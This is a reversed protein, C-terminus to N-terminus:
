LNELFIKLFIYTRDFSDMDLREQPTHIDEMLPGMTVIEMNPNLAKFVGCELGGHVALLTLEKGYIDKCVRKMVERLESKEDYSWAPYRAEHKTEFGFAEALIDMTIALDDVYSELAGRLSVNLMVEEDCHIVALNSSATSLGEISMSHHHLGDPVSLMLKLLNESDEISMATKASTEYFAVEMNADSFELEKKILATMEQVTKELKIFPADSFFVASAERPIANDKDGGDMMHLQMDFKANVAYLIRALLRNANGREKDIEGGSHGGKLGKVDLRYAKEQMPVQLNPRTFIVNMGGASSICTATEGGDDLNIMRNAHLQEKKLALAGFLGVEEQVTFICELMPHKAEQDDLLALMYAVGVGDDAGLTTGEAMLYGDELKLKLADKAFDFDMDRHKECVMDMHAQLIIPEHEEYGNSAPKCIIVNNMEDREYTFQHAKAFEELYASYAEEHFSGHPIRTMEEFYKQHAFAHNLITEMKYMRWLCLTITGCERQIVM